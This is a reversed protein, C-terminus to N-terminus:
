EVEEFGEIEVIDYEVGKFPVYRRKITKKYSWDIYEDGFGLIEMARYVGDAVDGTGYVGHEAILAEKFLKMKIEETVTIAKNM